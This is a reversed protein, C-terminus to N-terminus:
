RQQHRPVNKRQNLVPSTHEGRDIMIWYGVDAADSDFGDGDGGDHDYCDHSDYDKMVM